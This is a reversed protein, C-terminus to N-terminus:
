AVRPGPENRLLGSIFPLLQKKRSVVGNLRYVEGQEVAPYTIAEV